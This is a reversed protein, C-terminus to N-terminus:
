YVTFYPGTFNSSSKKIMIKLYQVCISAQFASINKGLGAVPPGKFCVNDLM